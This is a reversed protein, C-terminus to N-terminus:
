IGKVKLHYSRLVGAVEAYLWGVQEEHLKKGVFTLFTSKEGGSTASEINEVNLFRLHM